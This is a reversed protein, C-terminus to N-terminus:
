RRVLMKGKEKAYESIPYTEDVLCDEKLTRIFERSNCSKKVWKMLEKLEDKSFLGSQEMEYYLGKSFFFNLRGANLDRLTRPSHIVKFKDMDCMYLYNNTIIYSGRNLDDAMVKKETLKAFDEEFDELSEHLDRMLFRNGTSPLTKPNERVDELYGMVYGMYVGDSNLLIDMPQTIRKLKLENVFYTAKEFTMLDREKRRAIDYKLIKFVLDGYQYVVGDHGAGIKPLSLVNPVYAYSRSLFVENGQMEIDKM